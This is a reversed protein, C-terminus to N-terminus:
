GKLQVFIRNLPKLTFVAQPDVQADWLLGWGPEQEFVRKYVNEAM